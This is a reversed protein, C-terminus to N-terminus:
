CTSVLVHTEHSQDTMASQSSPTTSPTPQEFAVAVIEASQEGKKMWTDATSYIREPAVQGRSSRFNSWSLQLHYKLWLAWLCLCLSCAVFTIGLIVWYQKTSNAAASVAM